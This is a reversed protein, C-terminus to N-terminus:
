EWTVLTKLAWEALAKAHFPFNLKSACELVWQFLQHEDSVFESKQFDSFHFRSDPHKTSGGWLELITGRTEVNSYLIVSQNMM